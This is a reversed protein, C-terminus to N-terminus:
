CHEVVVKRMRHVAIEAIKLYREWEDRQLHNQSALYILNTMVELETDLVRCLERMRVEPADPSPQTSMYAVHRWIAM